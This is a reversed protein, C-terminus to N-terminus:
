SHAEAMVDYLDMFSPLNSSMILTVSNLARWNCCFRKSGDKKTVLVVSALWSTDSPEILGAELLQKTQRSIELKNAPSHRYARSSVPPHDGTDIHYLLVDSGPLDHIITAMLDINKYLLAILNDLDAGTVVTNKFSIEKAELAKSMEPIPPLSQPQQVVPSQQPEIVAAATLESVITGKKLRIAKDTPNLVRCHFHSQDVNVLTRGVLLSNHPLVPKM